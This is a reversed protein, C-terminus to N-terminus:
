ENNNGESKWIQSMIQGDALRIRILDGPQVQQVSKILENQHHRYVLSYGRQMVKLPSLADLQHMLQATKAQNEKIQKLIHLQSYHKLREVKERLQKLREHPRNLQLRHHLRELQRHHLTLNKELSVHLDSTLYDLRQVYQELRAGPQQFVPREIVRHFRDQYKNLLVTQARKLREVQTQIAKKLELLDPVVLEAAATPTAARLDAAYDSLTFDTEHGVASIVPINSHAISRVVIEENFAWLEELSGGGRGVILVDVEQVENMREIAQAVESAASTGQVAVPHLIIQTLPYRRRMTIIIDRVAAGHASTIVGVKKPFLPIGKKPQTFLGEADLKDKLALFAVYLDGLGSNRMEYVKLQVQGEKDYVYLDGRIM